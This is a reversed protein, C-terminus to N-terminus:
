LTIIQYGKEIYTAMAPHGSMEDLLKIGTGENYDLAGLKSSCAKCVGEILGMEKAKAFLKNDTEELEKILKVSEGEMVIGVEVSRKKLDMANLLVHAFCMAEGKFAFFMYKDM